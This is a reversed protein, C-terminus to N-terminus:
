DPLLSGQGNKLEIRFLPLYRGPVSGSERSGLLKGGAARYFRGACPDAQVILGQAGHASAVEKAHEILARGVGTGIHTPEVFLADLEWDDETTRELAYYGVIKQDLEAVRYFFRQDAITSAAVRLEERCADMFTPSYGWHSKSRFAISSLTEAEGVRACRIDIQAKM